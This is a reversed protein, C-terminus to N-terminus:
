FYLSRSTSPNTLSLFPFECILNTSNTIYHNEEFWKRLWDTVQLKPGTAQTDIDTESLEVLKCLAPPFPPIQFFNVIYLNCGVQALFDLGSNRFVAIMCDYSQSFYKLIQAFKPSILAFCPFFPM